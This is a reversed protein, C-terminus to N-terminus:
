DQIVQDSNSNSIKVRNTMEERNEELENECDMKKEELYQVLITEYIM